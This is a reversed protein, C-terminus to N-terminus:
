GRKSRSLDHMGQLIGLLAFTRSEPKNIREVLTLAEENGNKTLDKFQASVQYEAGNLKWVYTQYPRLDDGREPMSVSNLAKIASELLEMKESSDGQNSVASLLLFAKAREVYDTASNAAKRGQTLLRRASDNDGAKRWYQIVMVLSQVRAYPADVRGTGQEALEPKKEALVAKVYGRLFQDNWNRWFDPSIGPADLDLRGVAELCVPFRKGEMALQAAQALLENRKLKSKTEEAEAILDEASLTGDSLRRSREEDAVQERNFSGYIVLRQNVAQSYLEPMVEQIAPLLNTLLSYASQSAPEKDLNFPQTRAVVTALFRKKLVLPTHPGLYLDSVSLLTAFSLRGQAAMEVIKSLLPGVEPSNGAILENLYLILVSIDKGEELSQTIRRAAQVDGGPLAMQARISQSDKGKMRTKELAEVKESLAPQYKRIWVSLNSFLYEGLSPMIEEAHKSFDALADGAIISALTQNDESLATDLTLYKLIENRASIRLAPEDIKKISDITRILTSVRLSKLLEGQMEQEQEASSIKRAEGNGAPKMTKIGQAVSLGHALVLAICLRSIHQITNKM